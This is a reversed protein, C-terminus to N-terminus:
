VESKVRKVVVVTMDDLQAARGAFMRVDDLIEDLIRRATLDRIELASLLKALRETGYYQKSRNRAETVGDSTFVIVDGPELPVPHESYRTEAVLGVPQRAGNSSIQRVAGNKKLFPHELGANTFALAGAQLDITVACIAVFVDRRTDAFLPGNVATLMEAASLGRRASLRIMGCTMVATMAARMAKGSVDGVVIGLRTRAPDLWLYDFFDGGVENAPLCLGSIDFGPVEPDEQPMISMQADHAARLEAQMRVLRLRRRSLIVGGLVAAGACLALFWWRRWYPPTIVVRLSTGAENWVGDNNSGKVRFIYSGPPLTTYHAFRKGSSTTMWDADLGEMKCAYRNNEPATYDLAAFEFSFVYDAPSLVIEQLETVPTPLSVERNLVKFSTIVVPPVYANDRIEEPMFFNFGNIGGFFMEGSRSRFHSGGNFEKSQIGDSENFNRFRGTAPDFRSLGDPTSLWLRNREDLEIGYIGDSPLGEKTSWRRCEGTRPDFRNLGGGWTGIWFIGSPDERICFLFDSSLSNPNKPDSRFHVFRGTGPDFRDLGGGYTAIWIAGARDQHFGRVYDHGISSPNSADHRFRVFRPAAGNRAPVIKTVGGGLTGVWINGERDKMMARVQDHSMSNPDAPDHPYRDFAGRKPDFRNVGAGDTGIWLSGDDGPVIMRVVDHGLSRPNRPDHRYYTFRDRKRDYRNIGGGHTGIWLIGEPDEYFCWVIAHNLWASRDTAATVHGFAKRARDLRSIGGGYTGIWLNNSRDEYICRIEDYSLSRADRPDNRHHMFLGSNRDFRDLGGGNTGVWLAGAHDELLAFIQDHALSSPNRPDHLFRRFRRTGASPDCANLGRDTGIWLTGKRDQMMARIINNSIAAPDANDARCREFAAPSASLMRHLGGNTGIWLAGSRDPLLCRIFDDALGQPRAPEALFRDFRATSPNRNTAVAPDIRNLGRETGIWIAGRADQAIAHVVDHSLSRPNDPDHRYRIYANTRPDYLNVGSNYTGVWLRGERDEFVVSIQNHSLSNANDPDHRLVTFTYGDYRNLGDETSFWMFGKRDQVISEVISQSLGQEISLRHFRAASQAPASASPLLLFLLLIAPPM